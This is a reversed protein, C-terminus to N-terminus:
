IWLSLASIKEQFTNEDLKHFLSELNIVKEISSEHLFCWHRPMIENYMNQHPIEILMHILSHSLWFKSSDFCSSFKLSGINIERGKYVCNLTLM